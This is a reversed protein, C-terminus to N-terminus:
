LALQEFILYQKTPWFRYISCQRLRVSWAALQDKYRKVYQLIYGLLLPLLSTQGSQTAIDNECLMDDLYEQKRKSFSKIITILENSSLPQAKAYLHFGVIPKVSFLLAISLLLLKSFISKPM